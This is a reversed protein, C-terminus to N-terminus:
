SLWNILPVSIRLLVESMRTCKTEDVFNFTLVVKYLIIFLFELTGSMLKRKFLHM